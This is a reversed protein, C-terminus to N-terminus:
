RANQVKALDNRLSQFDAYAGQHFLRKGSRRILTAPISSDTWTEDVKPMWNYIDTDYLVWIEPHLNHTNLFPILKQDTENPFDLSILVIKVPENRTEKWLKEFFPM